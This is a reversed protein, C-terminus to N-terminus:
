AAFPHEDLAAPLPGPLPWRCCQVRPARQCFRAGGPRQACRCAVLLADNRLVADAPRGGHLLAARVLAALAAALGARTGASSLADSDVVPAGVGPAAKLEDCPNADSCMLGGTEHVGAHPASPEHMGAPHLACAALQDAGSAGATSVATGPQGDTHPGPGVAAGLAPELLARVLGLAIRAAPDRLPSRALAAVAAPLAGAAAAAAAVGGGRSCAALLARLLAGALPTLPEAPEPRRASAPVPALAPAPALACAPPVAHSGVQAESPQLSAASAADTESPAGHQPAPAPAATGASPETDPQLSDAADAQTQATAARLEGPASTAVDAPALAGPLAAPQGPESAGGATPGEGPRAQELRRTCTGTATSLRGPSPVAEPLVGPAHRLPGRDDNVSAAARLEAALAQVMLAIAGSEALLRRREWVAIARIFDDNHGIFTM